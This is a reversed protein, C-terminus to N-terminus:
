GEGREPIILLENGQLEFDTLRNREAIFRWAHPTGYFRRSISYLHEGKQPRYLRVADPADRTQMDKAGDLAQGMAVRGLFRMSRHWVEFNLVNLATKASADLDSRTEITADVMEFASTQATRFQTSLRGFPTIGPDEDFVGLERQDITDNISNTNNQLVERALEVEDRVGSKLLLRNAKNQEAILNFATLDLEEARETPTKPVDPSRDDTGFDEPRDHVSVSFQYLIEWERRYTFKWDTILCEFAQNQFQIRVLNGRRCMEEFRRMEQVAFGAFNYRDDWRGNLSFPEHNPGLVQETPTKAGPYDTRVTRLKGTLEWPRKPMARAGGRLPDPPTRDSVWEFKEGTARFETAGVRRLEQITFTGVASM